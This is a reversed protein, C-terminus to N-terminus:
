DKRNTYCTLLKILIDKLDDGDERIIENSMHSPFSIFVTYGGKLREGDFKIVAIDGQSKVYELCLLLDELTIIYRSLVEEIYKM